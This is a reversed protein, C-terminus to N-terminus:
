TDALFPIDIVTYIVIGIATVIVKHVANSAFMNAAVALELTSLDSLELCRHPYGSLALLDTYILQNTFLPDM